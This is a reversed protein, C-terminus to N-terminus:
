LLQGIILYFLTFTESHHPYVFQLDRNSLLSPKAGSSYYVIRSHLLMIIFLITIFFSPSAGAVRM